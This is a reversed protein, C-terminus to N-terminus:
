DLALGLVDVCFSPPCAWRGAVGDYPLLYLSQLYPIESGLQIALGAFAVLEARQESLSGADDIGLTFRGNVNSYTYMCPHAGCLCICFM